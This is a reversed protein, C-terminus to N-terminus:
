AYHKLILNIGYVFCQVPSIHLLLFLGCLNCRSTVRYPQSPRNFFLLAIAHVIYGWPLEVCQCVTRMAVAALTIAAELGLSAGVKQVLARKLSISFCAGDGVVITFIFQVYVFMRNCLVCVSFFFQLRM